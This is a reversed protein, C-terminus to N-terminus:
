PACRVRERLFARFARPHPLVCAFTLLALSCRSTSLAALSPFVRSPVHVGLAYGAHFLAPLDALPTSDCLPRSVRDAADYGPLSIEPAHEYGCHAPLRRLPVLTERSAQQPAQASLASPLRPVTPLVSCRTGPHSSESPSHLGLPPYFGSKVGPSLAETPFVELDMTAKASGRRLTHCRSRFWLPRLPIISGIHDYRGSRWCEAPSCM